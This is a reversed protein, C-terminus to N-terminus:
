NVSRYLLTALLITVIAVGAAVWPMALEWRWYQKIGAAPRVLQRALLKANDRLLSDMGQRIHRDARISEARRYPTSVHYLHPSKANDNLFKRRADVTPSEPYGKCHRYIEDIGSHEAVRQLYAKRPGDVSNEFVLVPRDTNREFIVFSAFHLEPFEEPSLPLIPNSALNGDIEALKKKLTLAEASKIETVVTFVNRAM